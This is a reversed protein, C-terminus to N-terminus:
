FAAEMGSRETGESNGCMGETAGFLYIAFDDLLAQAKDADELNLNFRTDWM